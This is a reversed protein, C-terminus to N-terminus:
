EGLLSTPRSVRLAPRVPMKADVAFTDSALLVVSRVGALARPLLSIPGITCGSAISM